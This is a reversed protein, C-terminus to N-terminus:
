TKRKWSGIVKTRRGVKVALNTLVDAEMLYKAEGLRKLVRRTAELRRIAMDRHHSPPLRKLMDLVCDIKAIREAELNCAYDSVIPDLGAWLQGLLEIRTEFTKPWSM